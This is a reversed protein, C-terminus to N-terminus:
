RQLNQVSRAQRGSKWPLEGVEGHVNSIPKIWSVYTLQLQEPGGGQDQDYINRHMGTKDNM